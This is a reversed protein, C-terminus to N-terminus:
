GLKKALDAARPHYYRKLMRLDKHGTVAALELLNLKEALRSTAEHRLDHFHLDELGARKCARGWALKVAQATLPFVRGDAGRPLAELVAVARSSLPVTRAEGNKTDPLHATQAKLDVNDWTLALLEGQRMATEVALQVLPQMWPNRTGVRYAGSRKAGQVDGARDELAELLRQEEDGELRRDRARGQPPRRIGSVAHEVPLGLDKRAWTLVGGLTSLERNVTASAVCRLRADRWEALAAGTLSTLALHGLDVRLRALHHKAVPASKMGPLVEREYRTLLHGLSTGDLPARDRWVGREQEGEVKRAWAEADERLRFSMRQAPYGKRRVRAHWLGSPLQDISAM